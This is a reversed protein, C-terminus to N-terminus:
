KREKMMGVDLGKEKLKTVKSEWICWLSPSRWDWERVSREWSLSSGVLSLSTLSTALSQLVIMAIGSSNASTENLRLGTKTVQKPPGVAQPGV